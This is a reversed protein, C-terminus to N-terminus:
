VLYLGLVFRYAMSIKESDLEKGIFLMVIVIILYSRFFLDSIHPTVILNCSGGLRANKSRPNSFNLWADSLLLGVIVDRVFLPMSVSALQARTFKVGVTSPLNKGWIVLATCNSFKHLNGRDSFDTYRRSLPNCKM